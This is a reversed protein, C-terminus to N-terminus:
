SAGKFTKPTMYQCGLNQKDTEAFRDLPDYLLTCPEETMIFRVLDHGGNMLREGYSIFKRPVHCFARANAIYLSHCLRM